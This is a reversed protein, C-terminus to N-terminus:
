QPAPPPPPPPPPPQSAESALMNAFTLAAAMGEVKAQDLASDDLKLEEETSASSSSSSACGDEQDKAENSNNAKPEAEQPPAEPEEPGDDTSAAIVDEQSAGAAIAAQIAAGLTTKAKQLAAPEQTEALARVESVAARLKDLAAAAEKSLKTDKKKHSDEAM